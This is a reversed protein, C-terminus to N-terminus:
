TTRLRVAKTLSAYWVGKCWVACYRDEAASGTDQTSVVLGWAGGWVACCGADGICVYLHIVVPARLLGVPRLSLVEALLDCHVTVHVLKTRFKAM